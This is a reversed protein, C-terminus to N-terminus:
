RGGGVISQTLRTQMLHLLENTRAIYALIVDHSEADLTVDAWNRALGVPAVGAKELAVMYNYAAILEIIKEPTM